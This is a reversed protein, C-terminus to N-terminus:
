EAYSKAYIHLQLTFRFSRVSMRGFSTCQSSSLPIVPSTFPIFSNLLIRLRIAAMIIARKIIRVSSGSRQLILAIAAVLPVSVHSLSEFIPSLYEPLPSLAQVASPSEITPETVLLVPQELLEEVKVSVFWFVDLAM